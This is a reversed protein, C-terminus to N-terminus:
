TNVVQMSNKKLLRTHQINVIGYIVIAGLVGALHSAVVPVGVDGLHTSEFFVHGVSVEYISKALVGALLAGAIWRETTEATKQLAVDLRELCWLAMLGHAIGSLGCYGAAEVAPLGLTVGFVVSVHIGILYLLRRIVSKEQLQAYILLFAAGDVLLHYLSAHVFPHTMCSWWSGAINNEPFYVLQEFFGGFLLPLNALALLMTFIIMEKRKMAFGKQLPLEL